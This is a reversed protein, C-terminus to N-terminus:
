CYKRILRYAEAFDAAAKHEFVQALGTPRWYVIYRPIAEPQLHYKPAVLIAQLATQVGHGKAKSGSKGELISVAGWLEAERDPRGGFGLDRHIQAVEIALWTPRLTEMAGAHGALYGKYGSRCEVLNLAGLDYEETLKHVARGRESSEETYWRPDVWGGRELLGTIHPRVQGDEYYTHSAADFRFSTM